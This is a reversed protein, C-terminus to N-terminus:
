DSLAAAEKAIPHGLLVIAAQQRSPLGRLTDYMALNKQVDAMPLDQLATEQAKAREGALGYILALNQRSRANGQMDSLMDEAAAFNGSFAFSLALNNRLGRNEPALGIAMSYNAQAGAHDGSLDCTIALGNYYSSTRPDQAILWQYGARAKDLQGNELAIRALAEQLEADQPNILAARSLSELAEPGAGMADLTLGIGKYSRYDTPDSGQARRYFALAEAYDGAQRLRNAVDILSDQTFETKLEHGGLLNGGNLATTSPAGCAGLALAAAAIGLFGTKRILSAM